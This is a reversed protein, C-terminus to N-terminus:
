NVGVRQHPLDKGNLLPESTEKAELEAVRAKLEEVQTSLMINQVILDGITNRIATNLKDM